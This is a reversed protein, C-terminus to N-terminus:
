QEARLRGWEKRIVPHVDKKVYVKSWDIKVADYEKIGATKLKKGNQVFHKKQDANKCSIQLPRSKDASGVRKICVPVDDFEVIGCM